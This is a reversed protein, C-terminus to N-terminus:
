PIQVADGDLDVRWAPDGPARRARVHGWGRLEELRVDAVRRILKEVAADKRVRGRTPMATLYVRSSFKRLRDLDASTPLHGDALVWPTLIAVADDEVIEDWVEDKHAGESGHHPVKVLTANLAPKAHALVADWGTAPNNSNVLDAGLLM